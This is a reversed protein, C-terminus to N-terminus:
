QLASFTVLILSALTNTVRKSLNWWKPTGYNLNLCASTYLNKFKVLLIKELFQLTYSYNCSLYFKARGCKKVMEGLM